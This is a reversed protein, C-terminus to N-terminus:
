LQKERLWVTVPSISMIQITSCHPSLPPLSTECFFPPAAEFDFLEALEGIFPKYAESNIFDKHDQVDKWDIDGDSGPM